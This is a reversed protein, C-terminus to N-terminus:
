PRRSEPRGVYEYVRVEERGLALRDLVLHGPFAYLRARPPVILRDNERLVAITRAGVVITCDAIRLKTGPAVLNAAAPFGARAFAPLGSRRSDQRFCEPLASFAWPAEGNVPAPTRRDDRESGIGPSATGSTYQSRVSPGPRHPILTILAIFVLVIITALALYRV